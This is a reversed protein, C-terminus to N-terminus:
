LLSQKNGERLSPCTTVTVPIRECGFPSARMLTEFKFDSETLEVIWFAVGAEIELETFADDPDRMEIAPVTIEFVLM